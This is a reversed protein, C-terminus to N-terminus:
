CCYIHRHHLSHCLAIRPTSRQSQGERCMEILHKGGELTHKQIQM